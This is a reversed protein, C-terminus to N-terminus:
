TNSFIIDLHVIHCNPNPEGVGQYQAVSSHLNTVMALFLHMTFVVFAYHHSGYLYMALACDITQNFKAIAM